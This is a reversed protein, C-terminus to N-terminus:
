FHTFKAANFLNHFVCIVKSKIEKWTRHKLETKGNQSHCCVKDGDIDQWSSLQTISEVLFIKHIYEWINKIKRVYNLDWCLNESCYSKMYFVTKVVDYSCWFLLLLRTLSSKFHWYLQISWKVLSVFINVYLM